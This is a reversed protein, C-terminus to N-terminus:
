SFLPIEPGIYNLTFLTGPYNYLHVNFVGTLSYIGLSIQVMGTQIYVINLMILVYCM